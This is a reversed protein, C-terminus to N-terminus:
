IRYITEGDVLIKRIICNDSLGHDVFPLEAQIFRWVNALDPTLKFLLFRIRWNTDSLVIFPGIIVRGPDIEVIDTTHFAIFHHFVTFCYM